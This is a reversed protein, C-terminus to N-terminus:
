NEEFEERQKKEFDRIAHYTGEYAAHRATFYIIAPLILLLIIEM